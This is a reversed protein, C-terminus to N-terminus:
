VFGARGCASRFFHQIGFSYKFIHLLQLKGYVYPLLYLIRRTTHICSRKAVNWRNLDYYSRMVVDVISYGGFIRM